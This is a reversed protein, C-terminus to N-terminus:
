REEGCLPGQVGGHMLSAIEQRVADPLECPQERIENRVITFGDPASIGLRVSNRDIRVPMLHIEEGAPTTITIAENVRRSLILM